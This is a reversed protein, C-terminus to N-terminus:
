QEEFLLIMNTDNHPVFTRERVMYAAGDKFVNKVFIGLHSNSSDKGGVISVGLSKTRKPIEYTVVECQEIINQSDTKGMM